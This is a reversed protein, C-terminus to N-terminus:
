PALRRTDDPHRLTLRRADLLTLLPVAVRRSTGWAQRAQSLTFPQDLGALAAAARQPAGPALVIGDAVKELAGARVAAALERTGLGLDRLRNADPAVFPAAELDALVADVSRQVAPPLTGAGGTAPSLRGDRLRLAVQGELPLAALPAVLESAPIGLGQRAAEVPMGPELPREAAHQAVAAGLARRWRVVTAPAVLWGGASLGGAGSLNEALADVDAPAAGLLVLDERRVVGRRSLEGAADAVAPLGAVVAARARAAGRRRLAPPAPDLVTVGAVVRHAGPDRLLAVDGVRLPLPDRLTLRASLLRGRRVDGLDSGRPAGAVTAADQGGAGDPEGAGGAGLVRVRAPVAAAGVHLVLEEPLRPAEDPRAAAGRESVQLRVDLVSVWRASGPTVLAAGRSLADPPTGRLNLAVRAVGSARQVPAGLSQVSRVTVSAGDATTLRDGAAVTGAPLTGTVVTGAGRITFSRDVWLRVPAAPDPTPLRGLVGALASRLEGMGAGTTASVAVHPAGAMTTAALQERAAAIAPAPDALDSRTIVLLGHRVGLADLADLHEGSQPMWGGDAAVVLMAAPVPGVGALMTTVFREHGPVDVFAVQETGAGGGGAGSPGGAAPLTTWAYGLDITLGRRREEEYRDPEMSTLARVLTSKGHDVHGATAIVHM